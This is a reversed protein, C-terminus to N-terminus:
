CDAFSSLTQHDNSYKGGRVAWTGKKGDRLQFADEGRKELTKLIEEVTDLAHSRQSWLKDVNGPASRSTKTVTLLKVECLLFAPPRVDSRVASNTLVQWLVIPM